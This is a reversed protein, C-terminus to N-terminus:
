CTIPPRRRQRKGALCAGCFSIFFSTVGVQAGVYLFQAIVGLVLHSRSFVKSLELSTHSEGNESPADVEPLRSFYMVLATLLFLAAIIMYPTRVMSTEFAQYAALQGPTM